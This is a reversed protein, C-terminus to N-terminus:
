TTDDPPPPSDSQRLLPKFIATVASGVVESVAGGVVKALVPVGARMAIGQATAFLSGAAVNGISAQIGAAVM